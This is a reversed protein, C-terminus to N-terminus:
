FVLMNRPCGVYEIDKVNPARRIPEPTPARRKAWMVIGDIRCMIAEDAKTASQTASQECNRPGASNCKIESGSPARPASTMKPVARSPTTIPIGNGLPRRNNQPCLLLMTAHAIPAFPKADTMPAAAAIGMAIQPPNLATRSVPLRAYRHANAVAINSERLLGEIKEAM